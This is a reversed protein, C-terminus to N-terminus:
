RLDCPLFAHGGLRARVASNKPPGIRDSQRLGSVKKCLAAQISPLDFFLRCYNSLEAAAITKVKPRAAM